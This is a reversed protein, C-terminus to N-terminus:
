VAPISFPSEIDAFQIPYVVGLDKLAIREIHNDIIVKLHIWRAVLCAVSAVILLSTAVMDFECAMGRMLFTARM